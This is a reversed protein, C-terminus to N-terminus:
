NTWISAATPQQYTQPGVAGNFLIAAVGHKWGSIGAMGMSDSAATDNFTTWTSGNWYGEAAIANAGLTGLTDWIAWIKSDDSSVTFVGWGNRGQTTYPSTVSAEDYQGAGNIRGFRIGNLPDIYMVWAFSTGSAVSMLEPTIGNKNNSSITSTSGLTWGSSASTLKTVYLTNASAIAGDNFGYDGDIPGQFLYIDHTSSNQAFLATHNHTQFTLIGSCNFNCSDFVKTDSGVGDIGSFSSPSLNSSKGMFVKFDHISANTLGISYVISEANAADTVMKIDARKEIGTNGHNPLAFSSAVAFDSIHRNVNYMLAIRTYYGSDSVSAFSIAHVCAHSDQTMALVRNATATHTAVKSWTQGNDTSVLLNLNGTDSWTFGFLDGSGASSNDRSLRTEGNVWETGLSGYNPLTAFGAHSLAGTGGTDAVSTGSCTAGSSTSSSSSSNASSSSSSSSSVSQSSSSRSSSNSSVSSM